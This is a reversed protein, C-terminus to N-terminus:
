GRTIVSRNERCVTKGRGSHWIFIMLCYTAKQVQGRENLISCKLNVMKKCTDNTQEKRNCYYEMTHIYWLHNIWSNINLQDDIIKYFLIAEHSHFQIKIM